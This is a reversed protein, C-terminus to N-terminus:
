ESQLYDCVLSLVDSDSKATDDFGPTDVLIVEKGDLQFPRSLEIKDTCSMLSDSVRLNSDSAINIFKTNLNVFLCEGSPFSSVTSKGVGTPGM